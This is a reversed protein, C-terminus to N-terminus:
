HGRALARGRRAVRRSVGAPRPCCSRVGLREDAPALAHYTTLVPVRKLDGDRAVSGRNADVTAHGHHWGCAQHRRDSWTAAASCRPGGRRSGAHLALALSLGLSCDSRLPTAHEAADDHLVSVNARDRCPEKRLPLRWAASVCATICVHLLPVLSVLHSSRDRSGSRSRGGGWRPGAHPARPRNLLLPRAFRRRLRWVFVATSWSSWPPSHVGTELHEVSVWPHRPLCPNLSRAPPGRLSANRSWRPGARAPDGERARAARPSADGACHGVASGEGVGKASHYETASLGSPRIGCAYRVPYSM